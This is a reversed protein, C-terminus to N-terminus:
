IPAGGDSKGQESSRPHQNPETRSRIEKLILYPYFILVGYIGGFFGVLAWIWKKENEYRSAVYLWYGYVSSRFLVVITSVVAYSASADPIGNKDTAMAVLLKVTLGHLVPGSAAQVIWAAVLALLIKEFRTLKM